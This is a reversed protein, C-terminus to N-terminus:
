EMLEEVQKISENMDFISKRGIVARQLKDFEEKDSLIKFIENYLAQENNDCVIGYKSEGLLERMGSCDTTIIPKELVIAESIVTSFGEAISSCVILDAVNIYPYPNKKYGLMYVNSLNNEYIYKKLKKEEEGVGILWLDFDMGTNNLQKTIRLLRDFAKQPSLRGIACITFKSKTIKEKKAMEEINIVDIPNYRVIVKNANYNLKKIFQERAVESVAVIKDFREYIHKQDSLNKFFRDTKNEKILDVHIWAYKKSDPNISEAIIKSTVGELFAIEVDYNENIHKKYIKKCNAHRWYFQYIKLLIKKINKKMGLLNGSQTDNKEKKCLSYISKYKIYPNLKSRFAGTDIVTMVTIDYKDKDLNNALNVLVKEAGGVQLTHILFLIKKKM